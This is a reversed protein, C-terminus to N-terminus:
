DFVCALEPFWFFVCALEVERSKKAADENPLKLSLLFIQPEM